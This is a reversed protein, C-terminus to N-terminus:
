PGDKPEFLRKRRTLINVHSQDEEDSSLTLFEALALVIHSCLEQQITKSDPEQRQTVGTEIPLRPM